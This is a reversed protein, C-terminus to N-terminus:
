ELGRREIEEQCDRISRVIGDITNDDADEETAALLAARLGLVYTLLEDNNM